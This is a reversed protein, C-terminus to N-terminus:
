WYSLLFIVYVSCIIEWPVYLTSETIETKNEERQPHNLRWRSTEWSICCDEIQKHACAFWPYISLLYAPIYCFYSYVLCSWVCLCCVIFPFWFTILWLEDMHGLMNHLYEWADDRNGSDPTNIQEARAAYLPWQLTCFTLSTHTQRCVLVGNFIFSFLISLSLLPLISCSRKM